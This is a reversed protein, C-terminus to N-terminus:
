GGFCFSTNTGTYGLRFRGMALFTVIIKSATESSINRPVGLLFPENHLGPSFIVCLLLLLLLLLLM